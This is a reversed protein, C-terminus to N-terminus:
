RRRRGPHKPLGCQSALRSRRLPTQRSSFRCRRAPPYQYPLRMRAILPTASVAVALRVPAISQWSPAVSGAAATGNFPRIRPAGPAGRNRIRLGEDIFSIDAEAFPTSGHHIASQFLSFGDEHLFFLRDFREVTKGVQFALGKRRRSALDRAILVWRFRWPPMRETAARLASRHWNRPSQM